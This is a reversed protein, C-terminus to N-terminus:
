EIYYTRCRQISFYFRVSNERGEVGFDSHHVQLIRKVISLGLGTGGFKKNRSKEKRYFADWIKDLEDKSLSVGFNEISFVYENKEEILDISVNIKEGEPTYKIANTLLNTVVQNIRKEDGFVIVEDFDNYNIELSKEKIMSKLKDKEKLFISGLDFIEKKLKFTTSELKSVELMEKVLDNMKNTEDLIDDYMDGNYM